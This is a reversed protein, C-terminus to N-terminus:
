RKGTGIAIRYHCMPGYGTHVVEDNMGFMFVTHFHRSMTARLEEETKCNIHHLKSLRSAYPMAERSPMGLIMTGYPKLHARMNLLAWDEQWEDIHELVDLAYVGDLDRWEEYPGDLINWCTGASTPDLDIGVLDTVAARVVAMGTGDGCGVELVRGCGHLMRAVFKYRSLVFGLHNPDAKCSAAHMQGLHINM